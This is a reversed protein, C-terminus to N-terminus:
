RRRFLKLTHTAWERTDKNKQMKALKSVVDSAISADDHALALLLSQVESPAKNVLGLVAPIANLQIFEARAAAEKACVTMLIILAQTDFENNKLLKVLAPVVNSDFIQTIAVENETLWCLTATVEPAHPGDLM